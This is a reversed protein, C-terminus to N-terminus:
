TEVYLGLFFNTVLQSVYEGIKETEIKKIKETKETKGREEVRQEIKVHDHSKAGKKCTANYPVASVLVNIDFSLFFCFASFFLFSCINAGGVDPHFTNSPAAGAGFTRSVRDELLVDLIADIAAAAAALRLVGRAPSLLLLPLM